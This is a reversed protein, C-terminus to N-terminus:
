GIQRCRGCLHRCATHHPSRARAPTPSSTFISIRLGFNSIRIFTLIVFTRIVFRVSSSCQTNQDNQCKLMSEFKSSRREFKLQAAETGGGVGGERQDPFLDALLLAWVMGRTAHGSPFSSGGELVVCPKIAPNEKFPRPHNWVAKAASSVLKTQAHADHMFKATEPLDHENFWKGLVDAFIFVTVEEESKARAIMEPTRTTQYELVKAMDDKHTQSDNAPPGGLLAKFDFNDPALYAPQSVPTAALCLMLSLAILSHRAIHM